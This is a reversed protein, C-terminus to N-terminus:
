KTNKYLKIHSYVGFAYLTYSLLYLIDVPHGPYYLEEIAFITYLSNALTDSLTAFLILTWLFNVQGRFFLIVAIISPTLIVGDLIPYIGYFFIELSELDEINEFTLYLTLIVISLSILTSLLVTNKSIANKRPKLYLITFAFFIPYGLIYFIDTTLTSINEIDYENEYDFTTDGVFWFLVFITFLIWAKGHHGNGKYILSLRIGLIIVIIPILYFLIDTLYLDEAFPHNEQNIFRAITFIVIIGILSLTLGKIENNFIIQM